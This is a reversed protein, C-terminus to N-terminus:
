GRSFSAVTLKRMGASGHRRQADEQSGLSIPAELFLAVRALNVELGVNSDVTGEDAAFTICASKRRRFLLRSNM